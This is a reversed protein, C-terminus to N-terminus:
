AGDNALAVDCAERCDTCYYQGDAGLRVLYEGKCLWCYRDCTCQREPKECQACVVQAQMAVEVLFIPSARVGSLACTLRPLRTVCRGTKKVGGYVRAVKAPRRTNGPIEQSSEM